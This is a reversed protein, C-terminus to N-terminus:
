THRASAHREDPLSVHSADTVVGQETGLHQQKSDRRSLLLLTGAGIVLSLLLAKLAPARCKTWFRRKFPVM